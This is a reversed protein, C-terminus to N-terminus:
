LRETHHGTNVADGIKSRQLGEAHAIARPGELELLKYTSM